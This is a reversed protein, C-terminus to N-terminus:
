QGAAKAATPETAARSGTKPDANTRELVARLAQRIQEIKQEHTIKLGFLDKLYFVDVAREGYTAIKASSIQLALQTLAYTVDYLFGPRDRRNIEVM